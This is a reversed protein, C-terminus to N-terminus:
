YTLLRYRATLFRQSPTHPLHKQKSFQRKKFFANSWYEFSKSEIERSTCRFSNFDLTPLWSTINDLLEKPLQELKSPQSV